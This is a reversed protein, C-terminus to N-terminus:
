SAAAHTVHGAPVHSDTVVAVDDVAQEFYVLIEVVM